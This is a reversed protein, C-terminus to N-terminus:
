FLESDRKGVRAHTFTPRTRLSFGRAPCWVQLDRGEDQEQQQQQQQQIRVHFLIQVRVEHWLRLRMVKIVKCDTLSEECEFYGLRAHFVTLPQESLLVSYGM